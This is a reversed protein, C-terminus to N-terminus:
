SASRVEFEGHVVCADKRIKRVQLKRETGGDFYLEFLVAGNEDRVWCSAPVPNQKSANFNIPFDAAMLLLDKPIEVVEYQFVTGAGETAVRSLCRLVMIRDYKTLHDFMTQRLAVLDAETQWAGKGLEKFKSIHLQDARIAAAAETKCSWPVDDVWIDQGPFTGGDTKRAPIGVRKFTEVLAFEFKDKSLPQLTGMHHVRLTDCFEDAFEQTMFDSSPNATASSGDLFADVMREIAERQKPRLRALRDALPETM